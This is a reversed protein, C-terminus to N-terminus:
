PPNASLTRIHERKANRSGADRGDDCAAGSSHAPAVTNEGKSLNLTFAPELTATM